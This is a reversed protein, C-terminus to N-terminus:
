RHHTQQCYHLSSPCVCALADAFSQTASTELMAFDLFSLSRKFAAKTESTPNTLRSFRRTTFTRIRQLHQLRTQAIHNLYRHERIDSDLEVGSFCSLSVMMISVYWYMGALEEIQYIDLEFGLQVIWEM